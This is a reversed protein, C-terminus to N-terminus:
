IKKLDFDIKTKNKIFNLKEKTIKNYKFYKRIKQIKVDKTYFVDTKMIKEIFEELSKSFYHNIYYHDYDMNITHLHHINTKKGFGNCSQLKLSLYHPNVIEINNNGRIISKINSRDWVKKKGRNTSTEPFREIVTRNDYFILNNDTHYIYNLQIIECKSFRKDSLFLKINNFDKLYIFEDIDFFILWDYYINNKKYNVIM